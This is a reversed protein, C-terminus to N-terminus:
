SLLLICFLHSCGCSRGVSLCVLIHGNEFWFQYTNEISTCLCVLMETLNFHDFQFLVIKTNLIQLAM